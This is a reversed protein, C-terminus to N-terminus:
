PPLDVGAAEGHLSLLSHFLSATFCTSSEPLSSPSLRMSGGPICHASPHGPVMMARSRGELRGLRQTGAPVVEAAEGPSQYGPCGRKAVALTMFYIFYHMDKGKTKWLSRSQAATLPWSSVHHIFWAKLDGFLLGLRFWIRNAEIWIRCSARGYCSFQPNKCPM